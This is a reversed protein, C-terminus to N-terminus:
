GSGRRYARIANYIALLAGGGFVLNFIVDDWGRIWRNTAFAGAFEVFVCFGAVLLWMPWSFKGSWNVMHAAYRFKGRGWANRTKRNM